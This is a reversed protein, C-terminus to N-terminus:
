DPCSGYQRKVRIDIFLLFMLFSIAFPFFPSSDNYKCIPSLASVTFKSREPLAAPHAGACACGEQVATGTVPPLRHLLLHRM